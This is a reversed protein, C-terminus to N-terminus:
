NIDWAEPIVGRTKGRSIYYEWLKDIHRQRKFAVTFADLDAETLARVRGLAAAHYMAVANEVFHVSDILVAQVSEAVIVQGHARIQLAHHPVLTKAVAAGLGSDSVHSPDQHVPIGDRWRIAHNKIPV